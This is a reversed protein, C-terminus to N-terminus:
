GGSLTLEFVTRCGYLGGVVTTGYVNGAGDVMGTFSYVVHEADAALSSIALMSALAFAACVMSMFDCVGKGSM